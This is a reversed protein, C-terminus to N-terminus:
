GNKAMFQQISIEDMLNNEIKNLQIQMEEKRLEIMKEIKRAEIHADTLNTRAEEMINRANNVENQLLLAQEILRDLYTSKSQIEGITIAQSGKLSLESELKEKKKLLTYLKEALNEFFEVSKAHAIQAEQKENDRIQHIKILTNINNMM